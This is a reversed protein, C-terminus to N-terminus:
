SQGGFMEGIQRTTLGRGYRTAAPDIRPQTPKGEQKATEISSEFIADNGYIVSPSVAGRWWPAALNARIVRRHDDITAEPYERCRLIIKKLHTEGRLSQDAEENWVELVATALNAEWATVVKGDVRAPVRIAPPSVPPNDTSTQLSLSDVSISNVPRTSNLQRIDFIVYLMPSSMAVRRREIWGGDILESIYGRTASLSAGFTAAVSSESPLAVEEWAKAGAQWALYRLVPYLARAAPSISTDLHLEAPVREWGSM